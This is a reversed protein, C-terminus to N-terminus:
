AAADIDERVLPVAGKATKLKQRATVLDPGQIGQEKCTKWWGHATVAATKERLREWLQDYAAAEDPKWGPSPECGARGREKM